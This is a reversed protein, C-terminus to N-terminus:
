GIENLIIEYAEKITLFAKHAEENECVDPHYKRAYARYESKLTNVSQHAEASFWSDPFPEKPM